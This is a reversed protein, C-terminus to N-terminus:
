DSCLCVFLLIIVLLLIPLTYHYFEGLLKVIEVTMPKAKKVPGSWRRKAADLILDVAAEDTPSKCGEVVHAFKIAYKAMKVNAFSETTESLYVLYVLCDVTDLPLYSVGVKDAWIKIKAMAKVYQSVTGPAKSTMFYDGVLDKYPHFLSERNSHVDKDSLGADMQFYKFWSLTTTSM